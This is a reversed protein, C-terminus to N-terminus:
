PTSGPFAREVIKAVDSSGPSMRVDVGKIACHWNYLAAAASICHHLAKEDPKAPLSEFRGDFFEASPRTYINGDDESRYVAIARGRNNEDEGIHLLEYTVGSKLHKFRQSVEGKAAALAKGALYGVLWFWDAPRKARDNAEGWRDVQHIAELHVGRLFNDIEPTNVLERLEQDNV